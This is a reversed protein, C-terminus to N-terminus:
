HLDTGGIKMTSCGRGGQHTILLLANREPRSLMGGGVQFLKPNFGFVSGLEEWSYTQGVELSSGPAEASVNESVVFGLRELTRKVTNRGGSFEAATLPRAAPAIFRHAVGAIAKSDYEKGDFLLRYDRASGFGYRQLFEERGLDDHEKVAALVAPRTLDALAM